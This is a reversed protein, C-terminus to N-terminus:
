SRDALGSRYIEDVSLTVGLAPLTLVEGSGAESTTWTEEPGRSVLTLKPGRHSVFLVHQLTALQQYNALKETRDYSETSPSSVEVLVLPNTIADGDRPLHEPNGEIVSIDPYTALGTAPILVRLDSTFVRHQPKLQRHLLGIITAPLEAHTPTGGSMAYIEGDFFEHKILSVREIALYDEYTYRHRPAPVNVLQLTGVGQAQRM